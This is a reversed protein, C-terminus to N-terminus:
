HSQSTLQCVLGTLPVSMYASSGDVLDTASVSPPFPPPSKGEVIQVDFGSETQWKTVDGAEHM